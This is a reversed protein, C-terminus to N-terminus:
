RRDLDRHPATWTPLAQTPSHASLPVVPRQPGVCGSGRDVPLGLAIASGGLGRIRGTLVAYDLRPVRTTDTHPSQPCIDSYGLPQGSSASM